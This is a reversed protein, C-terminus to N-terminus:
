YNMELDLDVLQFSMERRFKKRLLNYGKKGIPIISIITGAKKFDNLLDLTLNLIPNNISGSCSKDSTFLIILSTKEINNENSSYYNKLFTKVFRLSIFRTAIKKKLKKLKSFAVLQIANAIDSFSEYSVLKAKLKRPDNPFSKM